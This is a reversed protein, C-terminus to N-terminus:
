IGLLQLARLMFLNSPTCKFDLSIQSQSCIERSSITYISIKKAKLDNMFDKFDEKYM